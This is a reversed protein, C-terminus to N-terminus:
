GTVGCRRRRRRSGGRADTDWRAPTYTRTTMKGPSPRIQLKSGPTWDVRRFSPARLGVRVFDPISRDVATVEDPTAMVASAVDALWEKTRV